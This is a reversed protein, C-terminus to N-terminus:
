FFHRVGLAFAKPKIDDGNAQEIKNYGLSAYVFTRKSLGHSYTLGIADDNLDAPSETRKLVLYVTGPGFGCGHTVTRHVSVEARTSMPPSGASSWGAGPVPGPM